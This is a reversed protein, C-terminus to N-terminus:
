RGYYNQRRFVMLKRPMFRLNPVPSRYGFEHSGAKGLDLGADILVGIYSRLEEYTKQKDGIIGIEATEMTSGVELARIAAITQEVGGKFSRIM